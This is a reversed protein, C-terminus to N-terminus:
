LTCLTKGRNHGAREQKVVSSRCAPWAHLPQPAPPANRLTSYNHGPVKLVLIGGDIEPTPARRTPGPPATRPSAAHVRRATRMRARPAAGRRVARGAQFGICSCCRCGGRAGCRGTGPRQRRQPVGLAALAAVEFAVRSGAFAPSHRMPRSSAAVPLAPLAGRPPFTAFERLPERSPRERKAQWCPRM